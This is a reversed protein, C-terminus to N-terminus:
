SAETVSRVYGIWRADRMVDFLRVPDASDPGLAPKEDVWAARLTALRTQGPVPSGNPYLLSIVSHTPLQPMLRQDRWRAVTWTGPAARRYPYDGAMFDSWDDWPAFPTRGVSVRINETAEVADQLERWTQVCESNDFTDLADILLERITMPYDNETVTDFVSLSLEKRSDDLPKEEREPFEVNGRMAMSLAISLDWWTPTSFWDLLESDCTVTEDMMDM